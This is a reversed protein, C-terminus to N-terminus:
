TLIANFVVFKAILVRGISKVTKNTLRYVSTSVPRRIISRRQNFTNPGTAIFKFASRSPLRRFSSRTTTTTKMRVSRKLKFRNTTVDNLSLSSKRKIFKFRNKSVDCVKRNLFVNIDLVTPKTRTTSNVPWKRLSYLTRPSKSAPRKVSTVKNNLKFRNPKNQFVVHRNTSIPM